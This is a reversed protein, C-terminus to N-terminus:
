GDLSLLMVKAIDELAKRNASAKGFLRLGQTSAVFFRALADTGLSKPPVIESLAGAGGRDRSLRILFSALAERIPMPTLLATSLRAVTRRGYRDLTELFLTRKDGFAAYLSPRNLNASWIKKPLVRGDRFQLRSLSLRLAM